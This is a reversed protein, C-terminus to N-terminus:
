VPGSGPSDNRGVGTDVVWLGRVVRGAVAAALSLTCILRRGRRGNVKGARFADEIGETEGCFVVSLLGQRHPTGPHM